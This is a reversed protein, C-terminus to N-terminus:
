TGLVLLFLYQIYQAAYTGQDSSGLDGLWHHNVKDDSTQQGVVNSHEEDFQRMKNGINLKWCQPFLLNITFEKQHSKM